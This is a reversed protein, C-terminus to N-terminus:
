HDDGSPPASGAADARSQPTRIAESQWEPRPRRTLVAVRPAGPQPLTRGSWRPQRTDAAAKEAAPRAGLHVVEEDDEFEVGGNATPAIPVALDLACCLILLPLCRWSRM